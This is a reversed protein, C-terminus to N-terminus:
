PGIQIAYYVIYEHYHPFLFQSLLLKVTIKVRNALEWFFLLFLYVLWCM